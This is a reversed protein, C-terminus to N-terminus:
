RQRYYFNAGIQQFYRHTFRELQNLSKDDKILLKPKLVELSETILNIHRNAEQFYINLKKTLM